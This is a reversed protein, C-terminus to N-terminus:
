RDIIPVNSEGRESGAPSNKLLFSIQFTGPRPLQVKLGEEGAYLLRSQVNYLGYGNEEQPPHEFQMRIYDLDPECVRSKDNEVSILLGQPKEEIILKVMCCGISKEVGHKIANEVLPQILLAPIKRHSLKEEMIIAYQLREPFRFQNLSLFNRIYNVEGGLEAMEDTSYATYKFYDGLLMCLQAVQETNGSKAMRYGIYLSNFLFHPNIQARLQRLQAEQIQLRKELVECILNKLRQSLCNFASFVYCFELTGSEALRFDYNGHELQSLAGVVRALPQQVTRRFILFMLATVLVAAADVLLFLINVHDSAGYLVSRPICAILEFSGNNIPIQRIIFSEGGMQVTNPPEETFELTLQHALEESQETQNSFLTNTLPIRIFYLYEEQSLFSRLTSLIDQASVRAGTCVGSSAAYLYILDGNSSWFNVEGTQIQQVRRLLEESIAGDTYHASIEEGEPFILFVDKLLFSTQSYITILQRIETNLVYQQYDFPEQRQQQYKLVSSDYGILYLIQIIKSIDRNLLYSLFSLHNESAALASDALQNKSYTLIGTILLNLPIWVAFFCLFFQALLSKRRFM